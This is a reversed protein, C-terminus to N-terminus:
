CDPFLRYFAEYRPDRVKVTNGSVAGYPAHGGVGTRSQSLATAASFASTRTTRPAVTDAYLTAHDDRIAVVLGGIQRYGGVDCIRQINRRVREIGFLGILRSILAVSVPQRLADAAKAALDAAEPQLTDQHCQADPADKSQEKSVENNALEPHQDVVVSLDHDTRLDTSRNAHVTHVGQGHVAHVAEHTDSTFGTPRHVEHVEQHHVTHMGAHTTHMDPIKAVPKDVQRVHNTPVKYVNKKGARRFVTIFGKQELAAIIDKAHRESIGALRALRKYGPWCLGTRKHAHGHLLMLIIREYVTLEAKDTTEFMEMVQAPIAYYM